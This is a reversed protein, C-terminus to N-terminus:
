GDSFVDVLIPKDLTGSKKLLDAYSTKEFLVGTNKSCFFLGFLIFFPIVRKM